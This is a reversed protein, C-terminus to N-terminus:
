CTLIGAKYIKAMLFCIGAMRKKKQLLRIQRRILFERRFRRVGDHFWRRDLAAFGLRAAVLDLVERRRRVGRFGVRQLFLLVILGLRLRDGIRFDLFQAALGVERGALVFRSLSQAGVVLRHELPHLFDVRADLIVDIAHFGRHHVAEAFLM